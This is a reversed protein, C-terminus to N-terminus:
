KLGVPNNLKIKNEFKRVSYVILFLSILYPISEALTYIKLFEHLELEPIFFM